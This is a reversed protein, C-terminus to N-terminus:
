DGTVTVDGAVAYQRITMVYSDTVETGNAKLILGTLELKDQVGNLLQYAVDSKYVVQGIYRTDLYAKTRDIMGQVDAKSVVQARKPAYTAEVTFTVGSPRTVNYKQQYGFGDTVSITEGGVPNLYTPTGLTVERLCVNGIDEEDGGLVIIEITHPPIGYEDTELSNNQKVYADLVNNIAQLKQILNSIDDVGSNKLFILRQRYTNDDEAPQGPVVSQVIVNSVQQYYQVTQLGQGAQIDGYVAGNLATLTAQISSGSITIASTNQFLRSVDEIMNFETGAAITYNMDGSISVVIQTPIAAKRPAGMERGIIDLQKGVARYIDRSNFDDQRSQDVQVLMNTMIEIIQGQPTATELSLSPGFADAWLKRVQARVDEKSTMIYGTQTIEGM